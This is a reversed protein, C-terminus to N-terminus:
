GEKVLQLAKQPAHLVKLLNALRARVAPDAQRVATALSKWSEDFAGAAAGMEGAAAEYIDQAHRTDVGSAEAACAAVLLDFGDRMNEALPLNPNAVSLIAKNVSALAATVEHKDIKEKALSLANRAQGLNGGARSSALVLDRAEALTRQVAAIALDDISMREPHVAQSSSAGFFVITTFM